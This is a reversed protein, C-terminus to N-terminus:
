KFGFYDLLEPFLNELKGSLRCYIYAICVLILTILSGYVGRIEYIRAFYGEEKQFFRKEKILEKKHDSIIRKVLFYIPIIMILAIIIIDYDM